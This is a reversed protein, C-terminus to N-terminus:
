WTFIRPRAETLAREKLLFIHARVETCARLSLLFVRLILLFKWERAETLMRTHAEVLMRDRVETHRNKRTHAEALMQVHAGMLMRALRTHEAHIYITIDLKDLKM